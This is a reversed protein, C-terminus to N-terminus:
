SIYSAFAKGIREVAEELLRDEGVLAMRVYGDGQEGFAIGPVVVVGAKDLLDLAFERSSQYGWPLPAWVFMSAKPKEVQWGLSNLGDVLIDRRHQYIAANERVWDDPGTLAAIGAKQIPKYVGFDINSKVITLGAIIEQNGVVFGLRCGAMCFTKSFSHFEIAVDKAGPVELISPPRYGDYALESYALDHCLVIHNEKAFAVAEAFFEMDAVAAVPNNPYNLFMLKAKQAIEKPIAKLDPLFKNDATLPLPYKVGNALLVSATYVPYGPDPVLAIDGPNLYALGLHGLGDQSGMVPLVETKPNLPVQFRKEYWEAVAERFEPMGNTLPYGYNESSDVEAQLAKKIHDAPALDPSGISLNITKIGEQEKQKRLEDLESFIGSGLQQLREATKAM